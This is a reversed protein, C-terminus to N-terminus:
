DNNGEKIEINHQQCFQQFEIKYMEIANSLWETVQNKAYELHKEIDSNTKKTAQPESKDYTFKFAGGSLAISTLGTAISAICIKPFALIIISTGIILPISSAIIGNKVRTDFSFVVEDTEQFVNKNLIETRIKEKIKTRLFDNRIEIDAEKLDNTSQEVLYVLLTDLLLKSKYILENTIHKSLFDKKTKLDTNNKLHVKLEQRLNIFEESIDKKITTKIM